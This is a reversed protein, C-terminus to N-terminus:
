NKIDKCRDELITYLNNELTKFEEPTLILIKVGICITWLKNKTDYEIM